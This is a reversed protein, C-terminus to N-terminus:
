RPEEQWCYVIGDADRRYSDYPRDGERWVRGDILSYHIRPNGYYFTDGVVHFSESAQPVEDSPKSDRLSAAYLRPSRAEATGARLEEEFRKQVRAPSAGAAQLEDASKEHRGAGSRAGGRGWNKKGKM